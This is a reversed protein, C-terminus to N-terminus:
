EASENADRKMREEMFRQSLTKVNDSHETINHMDADWENYIRFATELDWGEDIFRKLNFPIDGKQEDVPKKKEVVIEKRPPLLGRERLIDEFSRKSGEEKMTKWADIALEKTLIGDYVYERASYSLDDFIIEKKNASTIASETAKRIQEDSLGGQKGRIIALAIKLMAFETEDRIYISTIKGM